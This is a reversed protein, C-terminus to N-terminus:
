GSDSAADFLGGLVDSDDEDAEPPPPPPAHETCYDGYKVIEDPTLPKGCVKCTTRIDFQVPSPPGAM